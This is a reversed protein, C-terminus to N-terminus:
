EGAHESELGQLEGVLEGGQYIPVYAGNQIQNVAIKPDACDGTANCSLSGTIGEFNATAYLADRLAQRGIVTNGAEDQQAVQEIAEFIMMSADYAHAHFASVPDKGLIEKYSVLFQQYKDGSFNLDPGSIFMGNAAEGAAAIFDPSIMGDAGALITNELGAVEQAQATVFAGEAIFIPYYIIEPQGTAISTLVPRMDTDGVNVAEQATIEGGLERFVDAFVQQLQEAYPSGDHITAAARLGLENYVFEAMVRGQVNDNHATRLLSAVHSAEATLAPATCSPSIMTLGADNYIPAAPTCSSSCSHGVVAVITPDSAIKTAATQGGEASCGDDEAQLSVPHGAVQGRDQIAVEVGTQSDIGLTENPGAIVLASAIRLDDGPAIVVCGLPDDCGAAVEAAPEEAAEETAEETVEETAEQKPEEKVEEAPPAAPQTSGGGCAAVLMTLTILLTVLLLRKSMIRDGGLKM